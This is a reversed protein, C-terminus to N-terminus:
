RCGCFLLHDSRICVDAPPAACAQTMIAFVVALFGFVLANTALTIYRTAVEFFLSEFASTLESCLARALIVGLWLKMRPIIAQRRLRRPPQKLRPRHKGRADIPSRLGRSFCALSAIGFCHRLPRASARSGFPLHEPRARQRSWCARDLAILSDSMNSRATRMRTQARSLTFPHAQCGTYRSFAQSDRFSRLQPLGFRTFTRSFKTRSQGNLLATV